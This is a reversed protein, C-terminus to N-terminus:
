CTFDYPHQPPEAPFRWVSKGQCWRWAGLAAGCAAVFHDSVPNNNTIGKEGQTELWHLLQTRHDPSRKFGRVADANAGHLLMCAGPHVEVIRLDYDSGLSELTRTLTIGRLTLYVMRIMTPPMIGVGHAKQNVLRRLEADSARDGGGSNYSLPADIGIVVQEKKLRASTEFILQDDANAHSEILRMEEGHQEFVVLHTDATNRPGSLDIGVIKM